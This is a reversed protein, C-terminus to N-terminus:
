KSLLRSDHYSPTGGLSAYSIGCVKVRVMVVVRWWERDKVRFM